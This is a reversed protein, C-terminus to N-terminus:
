RTADLAATLDRALDDADEIGVSLRILGEPVDGYGWRARREAMTHVSGFSTAEIILESRELLARARSASGVDFTLVTGFGTMQGRARAHAPDSPLGPYRVAVVDDGVRAALLQALALATATQRELRVDLTALSRHALWAEFPGLVAGSRDRWQRIAAAITEDRTAVTGLLLDGHGTLHKSGSLLTVDAGLELPRQGFPTALTNDVVLRGHATARMAAAVARVDVVDLGPNDPTEVLVLAAGDAAAVVAATDTPVLRVEVGLAALEGTALLQATPYAEEQVVIVDGARLLPFLVASIAASGSPFVFARIEGGGELEAVARELAVTTPNGYRAYGYQEEYVDDGALHYPAAFTPGPLLPQGQQPAPLGAHVARTGDAWEAM